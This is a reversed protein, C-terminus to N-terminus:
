TATAIYEFLWKRGAEPVTCKDGQSVCWNEWQALRLTALMMAFTEEQRHSGGQWRQAPRHKKGERAYWLVTVTGVFWAMPAARLVAEKKWVCPDHFGLLQKAEGIAVEVSWRRCYGLVCEKATFKTQTSLLAEDRWEKKPDRTLVVKVVQQGTVTPWCVLLEKLELKRILGSRLKLHRRAPPWRRDDALIERPTPLRKKTSEWQGERGRRVETLAATWCMPGLIDVTAPRDFCLAKGVYASDAVVVFEKGPLWEAVIKLLEAALVPKTRHEAKSKKGKKEAVRWLLPLCFSRHNRGPLQVVLGLLVWNNGYRFTKHKKTSLVADLFIGGFAVKAGRKHCLTDDIVLWVRSGPIFTAVLRVLLIRMVEDWNWCAQSFLRFAPDHRQKQARGSTEWVRSITRRGLCMVWGLTMVQFTPFVEARFVPQLPALLAALSPILQDM